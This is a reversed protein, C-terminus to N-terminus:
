APSVHVLELPNERTMEVRLWEITSHCRWCQQEQREAMVDWSLDSRLNSGARQRNRHPLTSQPAARPRYTGTVSLADSSFKCSQQSDAPPLRVGASSGRDTSPM